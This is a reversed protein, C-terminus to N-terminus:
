IHSKTNHDSRNHDRRRLGLLGALGLLGVGRYDTDDDDRDDSVGSNQMGNNENTQSFAPVTGFVMVSLM